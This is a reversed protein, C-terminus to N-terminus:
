GTGTTGTQGTSETQGADAPKTGSSMAAETTKVNLADDTASREKYPLQSAGGIQQDTTPMSTAGVPGPTGTAAQPYEDTRSAVGVASSTGTTGQSNGINQAVQNPSIGAAQAANNIDNQTINRQDGHNNNPQGCGCSVCM